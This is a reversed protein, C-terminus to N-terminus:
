TMQRELGMMIKETERASTRIAEVGDILQDLQGSLEAPSRMTLIQDALLRFTNEILDLQGGANRLDKAIEAYMDRRKALVAYNKQAVVRGDDDGKETAAIQAEYRAMDRDIAQIDITRLYHMYRACASALDLFDLVLKDLKDLESRLMDATLAPNDRALLFIQDRTMRLGNCRAAAEPPLAAFKANIEDLKAQQLQKEHYKDFWVKRLLKSDPAFLMWLAEVGVGVAGVWWSQTAAAVMASGALLSLNYANLFAYKAYPPRQDRRGGGRETV